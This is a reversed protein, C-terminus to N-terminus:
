PFSPKNITESGALQGRALGGHPTGFLASEDERPRLKKGSFPVQGGFSLLSYGRAATPGKKNRFEPPEQAAKGWEPKSPQHNGRYSASNHTKQSSLTEPM